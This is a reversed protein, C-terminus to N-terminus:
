PTVQIVPAPRTGQQVSLEVSVAAPSGEPVANHAKDYFTEIAPGPQSPARNHSRQYYNQPDNGTGSAIGTKQSKDGGLYSEVVEHLTGKGSKNYYSDMAGLVQPNIEQSTQVTNSGDAAKNKITFDLM